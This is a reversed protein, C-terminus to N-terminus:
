KLIMTYDAGEETGAYAIYLVNDYHFVRISLILVAHM